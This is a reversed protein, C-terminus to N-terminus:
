FSFLNEKGSNIVTQGELSVTSPAKFNTLKAYVEEEKQNLGVIQSEV